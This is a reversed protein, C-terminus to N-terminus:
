SLGAAHSTVGLGESAGWSTAPYTLLHSTSAGMAAGPSALVVGSAPALLYACTRWKGLPRGEPRRCVIGPVPWIRKRGARALKPLGTM